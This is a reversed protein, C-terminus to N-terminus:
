LSPRFDFGVKPDFKRRLVSIHQRARRAGFRLLLHEVEHLPIKGIRNLAVVFGGNVPPKAIVVFGAHYAYSLRCLRSSV